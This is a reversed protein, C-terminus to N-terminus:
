QELIRNLCNEPNTLLGAPMEGQEVKQLIGAYFDKWIQSLFNQYILLDGVTQQYRGARIVDGIPTVGLTHDEQILNAVTSTFIKLYARFEQALSDNKPLYLSLKTIGGVAELSKRYALHQIELKESPSLLDAYCQLIIRHALADIMGCEALQNIVLVAKKPSQYGYVQQLCYDCVAASVVQHMFSLTDSFNNGGVHFITLGEICYPKAEYNVSTASVTASNLLKSNPDTISNSADSAVAKRSVLKTKYHTNLKAILSEQGSLEEIRAQVNLSSINLYRNVHRILEEGDKSLRCGIFQDTSDAETMILVKKLIAQAAELTLKQGTYSDRNTLFVTQHAMLDLLDPVDGNFCDAETGFIEKMLKAGNSNANPNIQFKITKLPLELNPNVEFCDQVLSLLKDSYVGANELSTKLFYILPDNEEQKLYAAFVVSARKVIPLLTIALDLDQLKSIINPQSIPDPM